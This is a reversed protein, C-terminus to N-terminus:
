AKRRRRIAAIGFGALGLGLLALTGPEPTPKIYFDTDTKVQWVGPNTVELVGFGQLDVPGTYNSNFTGLYNHKLLPVGGPYLHTVNLAIYSSITLDPDLPNSSSANAMWMEDSAGTFGFEWLPTTVNQTATAISLKETALFEDVWPDSTSARKDSYAIAATGTGNFTPLGLDLATDLAAWEAATAAGFQFQYPGTGTRGTVKLVYVATFTELVPTNANSTDAEVVDQVSIVGYLYDGVDLEGSQNADAFSEWDNDELKNVVYPFLLSTSSAHASAAFSGILLLCLAPILIRRM